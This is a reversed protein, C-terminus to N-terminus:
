TFPYFFLCLMMGYNPHENPPEYDPLLSEGHTKVVIDDLDFGRWSVFTIPDAIEDIMKYNVDTRFIIDGCTGCILQLSEIDPPPMVLIWGERAGRLFDWETFEGRKEKGDELELFPRHEDDDIVGSSHNDDM